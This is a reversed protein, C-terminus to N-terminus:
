GFLSMARIVRATDREAYVADTIKASSHGLILQAAELGFERRIATAANHRLQHPHWRHDRRWQELEARLNPTLRKEFAEVTERNGFADARPRLHPPPPFADECARAISRAYSASTYRLGPKREPNDVRSRGPSNGWSLPTVRAARVKALREAEAEAPSFLYANAARGQLFPALIAKSRDAFYIIRGKGQHKTKHDVPTYQWVGSPNALDIDMPRLALLEGGRAGTLLQLEILARVQRNLHPRVADLMAQPVPGVPQGEHAACRGRKLPEVTALAHAVGADILEHSAAWRFMRRLRNVQQNIYGRSWPDRPRQPDHSGSIMQERLFRLKVPGFEEAPLTGFNARLLRLSVKLTNYEAPRYYTKAFTWYSKVVENISMTPAASPGGDNGGLGAVNAWTGGPSAGGGTAAGALSLPGNAGAALGGPQAIEPFRRGAAEWAAIIRHYAERSSPTGHEGLWYDRRKGTASDTLTVLANSYGQRRRYSPTKPM